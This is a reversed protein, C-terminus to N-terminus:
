RAEKLGERIAQIEAFKAECFKLDEPHEVIQKKLHSIAGAAVTKDKRHIARIEAGSRGNLWQAAMAQQQDIGKDRNVDASQYTDQIYKDGGLKAMSYDLMSGVKGVTGVPGPALSVSNIFATSFSEAANATHGKSLESVTTLGDKAVSLVTLGNGIKQGKVTDGQGSVGLMYQGGAITFDAAASAYNKENMNKMGSEFAGTATFTGSLGAGPIPVMPINTTQGQAKKRRFGAARIAELSESDPAGGNKPKSKEPLYKDSQMKRLIEQRRAMRQEPTRRPQYQYERGARSMKDVDGDRGDGGIDRRDVQVPVTYANEKEVRAQVRKAQVEATRAQAARAKKQHSNLVQPYSESIDFKAM